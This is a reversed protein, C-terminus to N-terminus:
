IYGKMRYWLLGLWEHLVAENAEIARHTPLYDYWYDLRTDTYYCCPSADVTLGQRRFSLDARPMHVAGTVLVVRSIGKERLLRASFVANEFTSYSESELWIQDAPIGQSLLLDRIVDSAALAEPSRGVSGGSAVIPLPKWNRYLWAAHMARRYTSSEPFTMSQPPPTEHIGGSLVVIAGAEPTPALNLPYRNELLSSHLMAVPPFSWCFLGILALPTLVNHGGCRRKTAPLVGLAAVLLALTIGPEIYSV